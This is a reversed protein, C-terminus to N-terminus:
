AALPANVPTPAKAQFAAAITDALSAERDPRDGTRPRTRRCNRSPATAVGEAALSAHTNCQLDKEALDRNLDTRLTELEDHIVAAVQVTDVADDLMQEIQVTGAEFRRHAPDAHRPTTSGHKRTMSSRAKGWTDAVDRSLRRPTKWPRISCATSNKSAEILARIPRSAPMSVDHTLRRRPFLRCGLAAAFLTVPLLRM